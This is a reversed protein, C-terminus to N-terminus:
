RIGFFVVGHLYVSKQSENFIQAHNFRDHSTWAQWPLPIKNKGTGM